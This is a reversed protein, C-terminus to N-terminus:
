RVVARLRGPFMGYTNLFIFFERFSKLHKLFMCIQM